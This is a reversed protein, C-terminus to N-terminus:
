KKLRAKMRIEIEKEFFGAYNELKKPSLMLFSQWLVKLGEAEKAVIHATAPYFDGLLESRQDYIMAPAMIYTEDRGWYAVLSIDSAAPDTVLEIAGYKAAEKKNWRDVWKAFSDKVYPQVIALHIKLPNTAPLKGAEALIVPLSPELNLVDRLVTYEDIGLFYVRNIINVKMKQGGVVQQKTKYSVRIRTGPPIESVRLERLSGDKMKVKYGEELIGSFTETKNKDTHKITIERTIENTAVVEGTWIDGFPTSRKQTYVANTLLPVILGALLIRRM